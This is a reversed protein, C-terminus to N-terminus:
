EDKIRSAFMYFIHHVLQIFFQSFIFNIVDGDRWIVEACSLYSRPLEIFLVFLKELVDFFIIESHNETRHVLHITPPIWPTRLRQIEFFSPDM